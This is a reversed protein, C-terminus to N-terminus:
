RPNVAGFVQRNVAVFIAYASDVVSDQSQKYGDLMWRMAIQVVAGVMGASLMETDLTAQNQETYLSMTVTRILNAFDSMAKQYLRDVRASVGLIEAFMVRAVQPDRCTEFYTKLAARAIAEPERPAAVVAAQVRQNLAAIIRAYVACLLDESNGFSEYFYRETLGAEACIARVTAAHYGVTGFVQLGADLLKTRREAAREGASAGGYSRGAAKAPASRAKRAAPAVPM